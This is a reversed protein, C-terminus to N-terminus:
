PLSGSPSILRLKTDTDQVLEVLKESRELISEALKRYYESDRKALEAQVTWIAISNLLYHKSERFSAAVEAIRDSNIRLEEPDPPFLPDSM